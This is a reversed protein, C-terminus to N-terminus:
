VVSLMLRYGLLLPQIITTSRAYLKYEANPLQNGPTFGRMRMAM